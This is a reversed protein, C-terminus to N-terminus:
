LAKWGKRRMCLDVVGCWKLQEYLDPAAVVVDFTGGTVCVASTITVSSARGEWVVREVVDQNKGEGMVARARGKVGRRDNLIVKVRPRRTSLWAGASYHQYVSPLILPVLVVCLVDLSWLAVWQQKSCSALSPTPNPATLHSIRWSHFLALAINNM